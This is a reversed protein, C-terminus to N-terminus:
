DHPHITITPESLLKSVFQWPLPIRVGKSIDIVLVQTCYTRTTTYGQAIILHDGSEKSHRKTERTAHINYEPLREVLLSLAAVAFVVDATVIL